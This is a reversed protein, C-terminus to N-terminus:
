TPEQVPVTMAAPAAAAKGSGEWLQRYSWQQYRFGPKFLLAPRSGFQRSSKELLQVLTEAM